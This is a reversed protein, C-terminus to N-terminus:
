KKVKREEFFHEVLQKDIKLFYEQEKPSEVYHLIEKSEVYEKVTKNM